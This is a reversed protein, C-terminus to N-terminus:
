FSNLIYKMQTIALTYCFEKSQVICFIWVIFDKAKNPKVFAIKEKHKNEKLCSGVVIENCSAMLFFITEYV